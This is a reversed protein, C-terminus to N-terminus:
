GDDFPNASLATCVNLSDILFISPPVRFVLTAQNRNLYRIVGCVTVPNDGASISFLLFNLVWIQDEAVVNPYVCGFVALAVSLEAHGVYLVM